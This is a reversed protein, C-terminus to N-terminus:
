FAEGDIFTVIYRQDDCAEFLARKNNRTEKGPCTSKVSKTRGKKAEFSGQHNPAKGWNLFRGFQPKIKAQVIKSCFTQWFHDKSVPYILKDGKQRDIWSEFLSQHKKGVRYRWTKHLIKTRLWKLVSYVSKIQEKLVPPSICVCEITKSPISCEVELHWRVLQLDHWEIKPKFHLHCGKLRSLDVEPSKTVREAVKHGLRGSRPRVYKVRCNMLDVQPLALSCTM